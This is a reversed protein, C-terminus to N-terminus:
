LITFGKELISVERPSLTGEHLPIVLRSNNVVIIDKLEEVYKVVTNFGLHTVLYELGDLLIVSEESRRTFDEIIYNLKSLDSPNLTDEIESQSLWLMPTRALKYKRKLKEPYERSILFGPIGHNVLDCFLELSKEAKKELVIYSEAPELWHRIETKLRNEAVPEVLTRTRDIFAACMSALIELDKVDEETIPTKSVVNDAGLAAFAEDQVIIPIWVFSDSESTLQKGQTPDYDEVYLTKKELVCKVGFYDPTNLSVSTGMEPLQAGKGFQFDLRKRMSDVLAIGCRDFGVNCMAEVITTLGKKWSREKQLSQRTSLLLEIRRSREDIRRELEEGFQTIEGYLMSNRIASSIVESLPKLVDIDARHYANEVSRTIHLAGVSEGEVVLPIVIESVFPDTLGPITRARRDRHANGSFLPEKTKMCHGVLGEGYELILGGVRDKIKESAYVPYVKKDDSVLFIMFNDFGVLEQISDSIFKFIKEMDMTSNILRSAEFLNKLQKETRKRETIDRAMVLVGTTETGRRLLSMRVEAVYPDGNVDMLVAEMTEVPTGDLLSNFLEIYRPIDKRPLFSLHSVHSGVMDERSYNTKELVSTNCSTVVGEVNLTMIGDPALEVLTRYREESEKLEQEAKKRETIDRFIGQIIARGGVVTTSASIHVPKITGSATIVEAEDDFTGKKSASKKFLEVYFQTKEPLHLEKQHHGIIEERKKELLTETAKNCRLIIGTEPDAWIIADKANEFTLRFEEESKQLAEEARKRDTIDRVIGRFGAPEGEVGVILSISAEVSGRTGDKRIIEWDFARTPKKTRYVKNFTKFVAKASEEDMYQRNNLIMLEDRPYGLIRCLSDNFFVFNGTTDVEFYGDEISRIITRYKEESKRLAEEARKRNTIDEIIGDYHSIEGTEDKVAVASVSGIFPTGNKKKLQLEEDRVFGDKLMKKNFRKRDKTNQYLDAVRIQLFEERSEYGFMNVIAPNAEIFKGMPGVTNRYVGVNVNDTLTRYKQESKRLTEEVYKHGTIDRAIGQIAYPEGERYILFGETEVWVYSGDKKKVKYETLAKQSGTKMIEEITNFAQQTQDKQLLSPFTLTTIEEKTYGLLDLAAKNADLFKGELDHMYVCYFARDFLAKYGTESKIFSKETHNHGEGATELQTIRHRMKKLEDILQKKSKNEDKM